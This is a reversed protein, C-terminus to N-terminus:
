KSIISPSHAQEPETSQKGQPLWLKQLASIPMEFILCLFFAFFYASTVDGIADIFYNYRNMHYPYRLVSYRVRMLIMHIMYASYTLRGLVQVPNWCCIWTGFWGLKKTGGFIGIGIALAFINKGFSWYVASILKSHIYASNYMPFAAAVIGIAMGYSFIFYLLGYIRGTFLDVNRYIYFLYGFIMGIIYAGINSHGATYLAHWEEVNLFFKYMNEPFPRVVSDYDYVYALVGPISVAIVLSIGLIWKIKDKYNKIAALLLLALIFIQTDAAIYWTHLACMEQPHVYNNLYLLNTWANKRCNRYETGIIHDWFPGRTVHAILTSHLALIVLLLPTLRIYRNIFIWFLIKINLKKGGEFALFAHYTLLWASILFFTQVAVYGATLFINGFHETFTEAMRTNNIPAIHKGMISHTMIVLSMNFFRIGQICKLNETETSHNVTRLRYYNNPISFCSIIKGFLTGTVQQYDRKDKYRALGEYFSAFIIFSTYALLFIIVTTDYIDFPLVENTQCIIHKIHGPTRLKRHLKDHDEPILESLYILILFYEWLLLNVMIQKWEDTINEPDVPRLQFEITCYLAEVGLLMCRDFDDMQFVPPLRGYASDMEQKDEELM